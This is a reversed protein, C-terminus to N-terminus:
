QMEVLYYKKSNDLLFYVKGIELYKEFISKDSQNISNKTFINLHHELIYNNNDDLYALYMKRVDITAASEELEKVNKVDLETFGYCIYYNTNFLAINNKKADDNKFDVSLTSVCERLGDSFKINLEKKPLLTGNSLNDLQFIKIPKSTKLNTIKCMDIYKEINNKLIEKKEIIDILHNKIVIRTTEILPKNDSIQITVDSSIKTPELSMLDVEKITFDSCKTNGELYVKNAHEQLEEKLLLLQKEELTIRKQSMDMCGTFLFIAILLLIFKKM